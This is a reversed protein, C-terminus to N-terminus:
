VLAKQIKGLASMRNQANKQWDAQLGRQIDACLNSGKLVALILAM